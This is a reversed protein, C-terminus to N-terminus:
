VSVGRIITTRVTLAAPSLTAYNKDNIYFQYAKATTDFVIKGGNFSFVPNAGEATITVANAITISPVSLPGTMVAGDKRVFSDLNLTTSLAAANALNLLSLGFESLPATKADNVTYYPFSLGEAPFTTRLLPNNLHDHSAEVRGKVNPWTAKLRGKLNRIQEAGEAAQDGDSPSTSLFSDIFTGPEVM